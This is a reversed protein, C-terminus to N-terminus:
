GKFEQGASRKWGQKEEEEEDEEEETAGDQLM